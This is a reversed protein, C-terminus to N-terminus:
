RKDLCISSGDTEKVWSLSEFGRVSCSDLVDSLACLSTKVFGRGQGQHSFLSVYPPIERYQVARMEETDTCSTLLLNIMSLIM